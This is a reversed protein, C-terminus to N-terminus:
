GGGAPPAAQRSRSALWRDAALAAIQGQGVSKAYQFPPGTIDGAAWIGPLNTAQERDTHVYNGEMELGPVLRAPPLSPRIIFIGDAPVERGSVRLAQVQDDQGVVAEPTGAIVEVQEGLPMTPEGYTPLYVVRSAMKALTLVDHEAEPYEGVVVVRRGAFFLGDCTACYAVGRGLFEAEGPLGQDHVLGSALVIADGRYQRRSTFVDFGVEAPVVQDARELVYPIGLRQLHGLFSDALESGSVGPLGLYNNVAHTSRRVRTFPQEAEIILVSRRRAFANIAASGGAPGGGLVLLEYRGGVGLEAM